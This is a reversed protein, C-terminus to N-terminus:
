PRQRWKGMAVRVTDRLGSVQWQEELYSPFGVVLSSIGRGPRHRVYRGCLLAMPEVSRFRGRRFAYEVHELATASARLRRRAEDSVPADGRRALYELARSTVLGLRLACGQEVFREWDVSGTRLIWVADTIWRLPPTLSARMGHAITHLLQDAPSLVRAIARGVQVDISRQWIPDLTTWDLCEKIPSFHLDFEVRGRDRFSVDSRTRPDPRHRAPLAEMSWGARSLLSVARSADAHPVWVDLDVMPRLGADRYTEITLAVGKLLVTPIGERAFAPLVAELRRLLVSNRFRTRRYCKKLSAVTADRVGTRTLNAFVLPALRVSGADATDFDGRARWV